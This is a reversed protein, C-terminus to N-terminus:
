AVVRVAEGIEGPEKTAKADESHLEDHDRKLPKLTKFEMTEEGNFEQKM